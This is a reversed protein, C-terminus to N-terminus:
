PVRANTVEAPNLRTVHEGTEVDLVLVGPQSGVAVHPDGSLPNPGRQTIYAYAGDPSFDLIDPTDGADFTGVVEFTSADIYQGNSSGRNVQLFTDGDPTLRVGHADVGDSSATQLL